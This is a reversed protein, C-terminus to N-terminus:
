ANFLASHTVTMVDPQTLWLTTSPRMLYLNGLLLKEASSSSEVGLNGATIMGGLTTFWSSYPENHTHFLRDYMGLNPDYSM